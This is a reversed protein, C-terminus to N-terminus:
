KRPSVAEDDGRGESWGGWRAQSFGTVHVHARDIAYVEIAQPWTRTPIHTRRAKFLCATRAHPYPTLRCRACSQRSRATTSRRTGGAAPRPPHSPSTRHNTTHLHVACSPPLCVHFPWAHPPVSPPLSPPLGPSPPVSSRDVTEGPYMVIFDDGAHLSIRTNAEQGAMTMSGRALPFALPPSACPSRSSRRGLLHRRLGQPAAQDVRARRRSSPGRARLAGTSTSM